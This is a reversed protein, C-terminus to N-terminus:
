LVHKNVETHLHKGNDGSPIGCISGGDSRDSCSGGGYIIGSGGDSIGSDGGYSIGSGGYSIGSVGDSCIHSKPRARTISSSSLWCIVCSTTM